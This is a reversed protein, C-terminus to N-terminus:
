YFANNHKVTMISILVREFTLTNVSRGRYSPYKTTSNKLLVLGSVVLNYSIYLGHSLPTNVAYSIELNFLYQM